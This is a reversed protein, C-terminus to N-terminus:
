RGELEKVPLYVWPESRIWGLRKGLREVKDKAEGPSKQLRVSLQQTSGRYLEATWRGSASKWFAGVVKM